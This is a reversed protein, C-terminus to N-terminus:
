LREVAVSSLSAIQGVVNFVAYGANGYAWVVVAWGPEIFYVLPTLLFLNLINGLFGTIRVLGTIFGFLGGVILANGLAGFPEAPLLWYGVAGGVFALVTALMYRALAEM